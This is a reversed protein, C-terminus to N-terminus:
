CPWSLQRWQRALSRSNTAPAPGPPPGYRLAELRGLWDALPTAARGFRELAAQAMQRPTASAPLTLGHRQLRRGTARLLRAAVADHGRPARPRAAGAPYIGRQVRERLWAWGRRLTPRWIAALVASLACAALAAGLLGMLGATSPRPGLIPALLAQQRSRTYDTVQERWPTDIAQRLGHWREHLGPHIATVVRSWLGHPAAPRQAAETRGPAVVATPDVRVWGRGQLWVEVWAHADSHRVRWRGPADGPEGGQYGTVIRAPIDMGRMLITFASAIHECFGARRDFWFEDASHTGFAGPALTYHYDGDRLRQLAMDVLIAKDEPPAPSAKMLDTALQLTRPNFGAPLERYELPLAELRDIPGLRAAPHSQARLRIVDTAPRAMVWHAEPTRQLGDSWPARADPDLPQPPLLSTELLPLWPHHSPAQTLTYRVAPGHALLPARRAAVSPEPLTVAHPYLPHWTRGDFNALVPGRFYLLARPPVPGDFTLDLAPADDRALRAVDGVAMQAALGTRGALSEGALGWLPPWRPFLLFLVLAVPLGAVLLRLATGGAQALSPRDVPPHALV